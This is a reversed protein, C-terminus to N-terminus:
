TDLFPFEKRNNQTIKASSFLRLCALMGSNFGHTWNGDEPCAIAACEKPYCDKVKQQERLVIPDKTDSSSRAFWVLKFYKEELERRTANPNDHTSM